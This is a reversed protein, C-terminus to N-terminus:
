KYYDKWYDWEEEEEELKHKKFNIVEKHTFKEDAYKKQKTKKNKKDKNNTENNDFEISM